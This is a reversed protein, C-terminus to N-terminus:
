LRKVQGMDEKLSDIYKESEALKLKLLENEKETSAQLKKITDM